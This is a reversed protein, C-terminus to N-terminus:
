NFNSNLQAISPSMQSNDALPLTFYFTSGKGLTSEVWIKGHHLDIISKAIYLGLGTGKSSQQLAGPARFFKTFLHPIVEQPIGVGTDQVYTVVENGSLKAGITIKGGEKTYNIANDILNNLVENIRIDDALVPSLSPPLELELSINKATAQPRHNQFVDTLSKHWDMSHLSLSISGREIKSVNLLNDVLFSLQQASALARSLFELQQAKLKGKTEESLVALYNIISTIPTRFEHSAMSVFDIQMQKFVREQTVDHLILLCSLESTIDGTVRSVLIEVQTSHDQRGILNALILSGGVTQDNRQGIECCSKFTVTQGSQDRMMLLNDIIKGTMESVHYGTIVEAAKNALVIRQQTDLVIIGDKISSLVGDLLYNTSPILEPQPPAPQSSSISGTAVVAKSNATVTPNKLSRLLLLFVVFALPTAILITQWLIAQNTNLISIIFAPLFIIVGFGLILKLHWSKVMDFPHLM